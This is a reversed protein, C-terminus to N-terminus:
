RAAGQGKRWASPSCGAQQRFFSGFFSQNSFNLEMAVQKVSMAPDALLRKAENLVMTAIWEYPTRGSRRRVMTSFYRSSLCQLEAYYQVERHERYYEHLHRIFRDFVIDARTKMEPEISARAYYIDIIEYCLAEGLSQLRLRKIKDSMVGEQRSMMVDLLEDLRRRADGDLEAVPNSLLMIQTRTDGTLSLVAQVFDFDAVGAVGTLDDSFDTIETHSYPPYLYICGEALCVSRDESRLSVRGGTCYFFGNASLYVTRGIRDITSRDVPHIGLPPRADSHKM